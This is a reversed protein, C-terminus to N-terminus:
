PRVWILPWCGAADRVPAVGVILGCAPGFIPDDALQANWTAAQRLSSAQKVYSCANNIPDGARPPTLPPANNITEGRM